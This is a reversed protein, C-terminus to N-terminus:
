VALAAPASSNGAADVAVANLTHAGNITSLNVTTAFSPGTTSSALVPGGDVSYDVRTVAINDFADVAVKVATGGVPTKGNPSTFTADPPTQDAAASNVNFGLVGTSATNGSADTAIAEITHMGNGLPGAIRTYPASGDNTAAGGDLKFSVKAVNQDDNA